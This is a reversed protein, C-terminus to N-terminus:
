TILVVEYSQLEVSFKIPTRVEYVSKVSQIPNCNYVLLFDSGSGPHMAGTVVRSEQSSACRCLPNEHVFTWIMPDTTVCFPRERVTYFLDLNLTPSIWRCWHVDIKRSNVGVVSLSITYRCDVRGTFLDM